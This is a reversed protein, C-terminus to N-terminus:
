PHAPARKLDPRGLHAPSVGDGGIAMDLLDVVM